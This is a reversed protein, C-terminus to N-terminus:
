RACLRRLGPSGNGKRPTIKSELQFVKKLVARLVFILAFMLIQDWTQLEIAKLLAAVTKMSMGLLAGRAVILQADAASGSRVAAVFAAACYGVIVGASALDIILIFATLISTEIQLM